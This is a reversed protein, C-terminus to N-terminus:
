HPILKLKHKYETIDRFINVTVYKGYLWKKTMGGYHKHRPHGSQGSPMIFLIREPQSFDYIFRMAAGLKVEYPAGFSYGTNMLTTGAGGTELEGIDFQADIISSVGHFPHKLTLTHLKGWQWEAPNKGFERELFAVADVMSKRLVINKSEYIDVTTKDDWLSSNSKLIRKMALFSVNSIFTYENYVTEGLEDYLTNYLLKTFFVSYIAAPQSYESFRYDWRYLLNLATNLNEDKIKTKGFAARVASIFEKPYESHIDKQMKKFDSVSYKEKEKLLSEIRNFRTSPEWLNSIYIDNKNLPNNNANAIFGKAPNFVNPLKEFPIFSRADFESDSGDYIFRGAYKKRLPIKGASQMGINGKSDAYIFNQGPASFGRLAERFSNWDDARNILIFSLLDDNPELASWSLSVASANREEYGYLFNFLHRGTVIPGHGTKFIKIEVGPLNKVKISDTKVILDYLKGDYCYKKEATDLKEIYFDCQDAMLNTLGWAIKRNTGIVVSPLGPITFGAITNDNIHEVAFFWKDPLSLALHTDNALLPLSSISKSSDVAWANSGVSSSSFGLLEKAYVNVSLFEKLNESGKILRSMEVAESPTINYPLIDRLEEATLKGAADILAADIWWSLNLEWALLKAIAFSHVPQWPEPSYDLLDFEIAINNENETLYKNVGKAYAKIITETEPSAIRWSKEAAEFLGLTRFMKDIPVTKEGIIESLRGEAARRMMEMQFFREQAHAFGLAFAADAESSAYIVPVGSSDRFIEVNREIGECEIEGNYEPFSSEIMYKATILFAAIIVILTIFGYIIKKM